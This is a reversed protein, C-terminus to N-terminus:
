YIRYTFNKCGFLICLAFTYATIRGLRLREEAILTEYSFYFTIIKAAIIGVHEDQFQEGPIKILLAMLLLILLDMITSKFGQTRRSFGSTILISGAFIGLLRAEADKPQEAGQRPTVLRVL